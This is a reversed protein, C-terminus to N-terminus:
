WPLLHSSNSDFGNERFDGRVSWGGTGNRYRYLMKVITLSWKNHDVSDWQSNSNMHWCILFSLNLCTTLTKWPITDLRTANVLSSSLAGSTWSKEKHITGNYGSRIAILVHRPHELVWDHQAHRSTVQTRTRASVNAIYGPGFCVVKQAELRGCILCMNFALKLMRYHKDICKYDLTVM